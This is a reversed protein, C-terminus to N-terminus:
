ERVGVNMSATEDVVTYISIELKEGAKRDSRERKERRTLMLEENKMYFRLNKLGENVNYYLLVMVDYTGM